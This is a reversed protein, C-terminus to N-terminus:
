MTKRRAIAVVLVIIGGLLGLTGFLIEFVKEVKTDEDSALSYRGCVPLYISCFEKFNRHCKLPVSDNKIECDPLLTRFKTNMVIRWEKACVEDRVNLCQENTISLVSGNGDCPPYVYQCVSPLVVNTCEESVSNSSKAMKFLEVVQEETVVDTSQAILIDDTDTLSTLYTSCIGDYYSCTVNM